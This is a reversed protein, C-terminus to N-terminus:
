TAPFSPYGLDQPRSSDWVKYHEPVKRIAIEYERFHPFISEYTNGEPAMKPRPPQIKGLIVGNHMELKVSGVTLNVSCPPLVMLGAPQPAGPCAGVGVCM